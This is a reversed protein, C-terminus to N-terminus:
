IHFSFSDRPSVNFMIVFIRIKQYVDVRMIVMM